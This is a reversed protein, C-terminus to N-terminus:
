DLFCTTHIFWAQEESVGDSFRSSHVEDGWTRLFWLNRDPTSPRSLGPCAPVYLARANGISANTSLRKRYIPSQIRLNRSFSSRRHRISAIDQHAILFSRSLRLRM